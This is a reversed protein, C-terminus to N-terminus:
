RLGFRVPVLVPMAVPAGGRRGPEFRWGKVAKLAAEDLLAHGSSEHVALGSVKGEASVLVELVVTGELQRRRALPPYEPPPNERYLPQALVVPLAVQVPSTAAAGGSSFEVQGSSEKGSAVATGASGASQTEVKVQAGLSVAPLSKAVQEVGVAVSEAVVPVVVERAMEAIPATPPLVAAREPVEEPPLRRAPEPLSEHRESPGSFPAMEAPSYLQIPYVEPSQVSKEVLFMATLALFGLHLLVAGALPLNIGPAFRATAPQCVKAEAATGAETTIVGDIVLSDSM